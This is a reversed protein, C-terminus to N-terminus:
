IDEDEWPEEEDELPEKSKKLFLVVVIIVVAIGGIIVYVLEPPLDLEAIAGSTPDHDVLINLTDSGDIYGEAQMTFDISVEPGTLAILDFTASGDPGTRVLDTSVTANENPIIFIKAGAVSDATDDDVFVTVQIEKNVAIPEILGSTFINLSSATSKASISTKDSMLGKASASIVSTGQKGQVDIQFEAFSNGKEIIVSDDVRIVDRNSSITKVKINKSAAIPNGQLDILQITGVGEKKSPNVNEVNVNETPLIIMIKSSLQTVFNQSSGLKTNAGEGIPSVKLNTKDGDSLSFSDGQLTAFTFTDGKKIEILNNSPTLLFKENFDLVKARNAGDLAVLFLDFSGDRELLLTDSGTPSFLAIKRLELSNVVSTDFSSSGFGKISTSISVDGSTQTTGVQVVGYSYTSKIRGPDEIFVIDDNSSVVNLRVVLGDTQLTEGAQIPYLEDDELYDIDFKQVKESIDSDNDGKSGDNVTGTLESDEPDYDDGFEDEIESIYEEVEDPDDEDIEVITMQYAFYATANSPIREPGFFQIVKDDNGTILRDSSLVGVDSIRKAEISISEGVTSFTDTAVGLGPASVGIIVNNKLM